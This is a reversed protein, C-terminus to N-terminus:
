SRTDRILAWNSPQNYATLVPCHLLLSYSNKDICRSIRLWSNLWQAIDENRMNIPNLGRFFCAWRIEDQTMKEVGGERIIALDM